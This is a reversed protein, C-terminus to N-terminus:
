NEEVSELIEVILDIIEEENMDNIYNMKEAIESMRKLPMADVYKQYIKIASSRLKIIKNEKAKAIIHNTEQTKEENLFTDYYEEINEEKNEVDLMKSPSTSAQEKQMSEITKEESKTKFKALMEEDFIAEKPKFDILYLSENSVVFEIIAEKRFELCVRKAMYALDRIESDNFVQDELSSNIKVVKNEIPDYSYYFSQGRINIKLIRLDNLDVIYEDPSGDLNSLYIGYGKVAYIKAINKEVDIKGARKHDIMEQIVISVNLLKEPHKLNKRINEELFMAAWITKIAEFIEKKKLKLFTLQFPKEIPTNTSIRVSVDVTITDLIKEANIETGLLNFNDIIEDKISDPFYGQIIMKQIIPALEQIKEPNEICIGIMEDIKNLLGNQELFHQFALPLVVFGNPVLYSRKMLKGLNYAKNGVLEKDNENLDKIWKVYRSYRTTNNLDQLKKILNDLMKLM